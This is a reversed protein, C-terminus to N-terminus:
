EGADEGAVRDAAGGGVAGGVGVRVQVGGGEGRGVRVVSGGGARAGATAPARFLLPPRRQSAPIPPVFPHVLSAPHPQM